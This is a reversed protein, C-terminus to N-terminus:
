KKLISERLCQVGVALPLIERSGGDIEGEGKGMEQRRDGEVM